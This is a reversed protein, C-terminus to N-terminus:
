DDTDFSRHASALLFACFRKLLRSSFDPDNAPVAVLSLGEVAQELFGPSKELIFDFNEEGFFLIDNKIKVKFISVCWM